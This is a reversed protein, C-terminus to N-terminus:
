TQVESGQKPRDPRDLSQRLMLYARSLRKTVTGLPIGLQEAVEACSMQSYYRLLIVERYVKGLRAIARELPYDQSPTPDNSTALFGDSIASHRRKAREQEKAVRDAISLLWSCFSERKRLASLAFYSRVFTEQAAEEAQDRDGMLGSLHCLLCSRYREVLRGFAEPRGDLCFEILESDTPVMVGSTDSQVRIM